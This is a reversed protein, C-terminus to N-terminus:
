KNARTNCVIKLFSVPIKQQLCIKEEPFYKIKAYTTLFYRPSSEHQLIFSTYSRAPTYSILEPPM